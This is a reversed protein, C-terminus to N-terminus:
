DYSTRLKKLHAIAQRRLWTPKLIACQGSFSALYNLLRQHTAGSKRVKLHLVGSGDPRVDFRRDPRLSEQVMWAVDPHFLIQAWEEKGGAFEWPAREIHQEIDFGAPARFDPGKGKKSVQVAGEIRMVKFQRLDNRQQDEGVLYWEGERYGLGYPHLHRDTVQRGNPKRYKFRVQRRDAIARVLRDLNDLVARDRKGRSFAHVHRQAIASTVEEQLPSDIAMKLLASRLNSSIADNGGRAANALLVLLAAEDPTLQVEHHFYEERPIFYGDRGQEDSAVYEVPIGIERLEKKDRDFRKEVADERALDNYGVVTKRITAFPVPEGSALLFAVLNMLREFKAVADIM